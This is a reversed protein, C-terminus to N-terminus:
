VRLSLNRPHLMSPEWQRQTKIASKRFISLMCNTSVHFSWKMGFETHRLEITRENDSHFRSSFTYNLCGGNQKRINQLIFSLLLQMNKVSVNVFM